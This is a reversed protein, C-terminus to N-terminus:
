ERRFKLIEGDMYAEKPYASDRDQSLRDVDVWIKDQYADFRVFESGDKSVSVKGGDMESYSHLDSLTPITKIKSM